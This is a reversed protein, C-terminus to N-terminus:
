ESEEVKEAKVIPKEARKLNWGNSQYRYLDCECVLIEDGTKSYVKVMKM